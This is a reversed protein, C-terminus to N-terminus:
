TRAQTAAQRLTRPDAKLAFVPRSVRFIVFARFFIYELINKYFSIRSCHGKNNGEFFPARPVYIEDVGEAARGGGWGAGGRLETECIEGVRSGKHTERPRM